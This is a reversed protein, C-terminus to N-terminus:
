SHRSPESHWAAGGMSPLPLPIESYGMDGGGAKQWKEWYIHRDTQTDIYPDMPGKGTGLKGESGWWWVKSSHKGGSILLYIKPVKGAM